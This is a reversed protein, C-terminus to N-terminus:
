IQVDTHYSLLMYEGSSQSLLKSLSQPITVSVDIIFIYPMPFSLSQKHMHRYISWNQWVVYECIWVQMNIIRSISTNRRRPHSVTYSKYSGVNRLFRGGEFCINKYFICPTVDWLFANRTSVVTLVELGADNENIVSRIMVHILSFREVSLQNDPNIDCNWKKFMHDSYESMCTSALFHAMRVWKCLSPNCIGPEIESLTLKTQSRVLKKYLSYNAVKRPPPPLLAATDHLQGSM